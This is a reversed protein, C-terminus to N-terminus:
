PQPLRILTKHQKHYSLNPRTKDTNSAGFATTVDKAVGDCESYLARCEALQGDISTAKMPGYCGLTFPAFRQVVYYYVQSDFPTCLVSVSRYIFPNRRSRSPKNTRLTVCKVRAIGSPHKSLPLIHKPFLSVGASFAFHRWFHITLTHLLASTQRWFRTDCGM